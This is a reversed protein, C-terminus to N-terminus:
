SVGMEDDSVHKVGVNRMQWIEEVEIQLKKEQEKNHKELEKERLNAIVKTEGRALNLEMMKTQYKKEQVSLRNKEAEIHDRKIKVYFPYFKLMQADAHSIAEEYSKFTLEIEQDLQHVKDKHGQIVKMIEGLEHKLKKEKFERLKILAELKFEFKKV